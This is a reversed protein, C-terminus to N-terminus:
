FFRVKCLEKMEKAEIGENGESNKKVSLKRIRQKRMKSAVIGAM